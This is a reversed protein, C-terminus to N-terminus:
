GVNSAGGFQAVPQFQAPDKLLKLHKMGYYPRTKRQSEERLRGKGKVIGFYGQEEGRIGCPLTEEYFFPLGGGEDGPL